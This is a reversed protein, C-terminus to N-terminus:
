RRLARFVNEASDVRYVFVRYYVCVYVYLFWLSNFQFYFLYLIFRFSSFFVIPM